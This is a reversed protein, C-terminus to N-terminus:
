AAREVQDAEYWGTKWSDFCSRQNVGRYPNEKVPVGNMRSVMGEDYPLKEWELVEYTDFRGM